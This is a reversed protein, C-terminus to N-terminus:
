ARERLQASIRKQPTMEPTGTIDADTIRLPAADTFSLEFIMGTSGWFTGFRRSILRQKFKGIQGMDLARENSWNHGGDKSFRIMLQPGRSNGSGDQLPINPGLGTDAMIELADIQNWIGAQGVYPSRRVRKIPNGADTVFNWGGAGDSTPMSMQYITGSKSGGVLHKGFAYAHFQSLHAHEVGNTFSTKQHWLATAVDYCWTKDATPFSWQCITHGGDQYSLFIADSITSYGQWEKEIPHTSIRQFTTGNVRFAVGGGLPDAWIGFLTNDAQGTGFTAGSGQDSFGGPAVDFPFTNGSDYYCVSKKTGFFCLYRSLSAMSIINDSFVSVIATQAPDWTTGDLPNSVYFRASNGILAAFFGDCYAVQAVGAITAIPGTLANTALALCYGQGGSAIMLQINSSAFSVPLGDNAVSGLPTASANALIEYLTGGSVAFTRPIVGPTSLTYMGRLPSDALTVFPSLGPTNVLILDNKGAGSEDKEVMLNKCQQVDASYAQSEYAGGILGFRSM